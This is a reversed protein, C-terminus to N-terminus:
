DWFDVAMNARSFHHLNTRNKLHPKSFVKHPKWTRDVESLPPVKVMNVLELDFTEPHKKQPPTKVWPSSIATFWGNSWKKSQQFVNNKNLNGSMKVTPATKNQILIWWFFRFIRVRRLFHCKPSEFAEFNLHKMTKTALFHTKQQRFIVLNPGLFRPQVFELHSVNTNHVIQLIYKEMHSVNIWRRTIHHLIGLGPAFTTSATQCARSNWFRTSAKIIQIASLKLKDHSLRTTKYPQHNLFGALWRPHIISQLIIPCKGYWSSCSKKWWCYSCTQNKIKRFPNDLNSAPLILNRLAVTFM